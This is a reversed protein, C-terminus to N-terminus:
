VSPERSPGDDARQVADRRESAQVRAAQVRESELAQRAQESINVVTSPRPPAPQPAVSSQRSAALGSPRELSESRARDPPSAPSVNNFTGIGTNVTAM